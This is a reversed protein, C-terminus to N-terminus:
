AIYRTRIRTKNAVVSFIISCQTFFCLIKITSIRKNCHIFHEWLTNLTQAERQCYFLSQLIKGIYSNPIISQILILVLYPIYLSIYGGPINSRTDRTSDQYLSYTMTVIMLSIIVENIENLVMQIKLPTLNLDQGIQTTM